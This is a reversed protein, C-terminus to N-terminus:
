QERLSERQFPGSKRFTWPTRDFADGSRLAPSFEFIQLNMQTENLVRGPSWADKGVVRREVLSFVACNFGFRTMATAFLISGFRHQEIKQSFDDKKFVVEVKFRKKM